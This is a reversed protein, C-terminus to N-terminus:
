SIGQLNKVRWTAQGIAQTDLGSDAKVILQKREQHNVDSKIANMTPTVSISVSSGPTVSTWDTIVEKNTLDEVRYHVTTPTSAGSSSRTRFNVTATFNSGEYFTTKPLTIEVQDTMTESDELLIYFGSASELSVLITQEANEQQLLNM